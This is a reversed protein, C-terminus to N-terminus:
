RNSIDMEFIPRKPCHSLAKWLRLDGYCHKQSWLPFTFIDLSSRWCRSPRSQFIPSWDPSWCSRPLQAVTGPHMWRLSPLFIQIFFTRFCFNTSSSQDLLSPWLLLFFLFSSFIPLQVQNLRTKALFQDWQSIELWLYTRVNEFAQWLGWRKFIYTLQESMGGLHGPEFGPM